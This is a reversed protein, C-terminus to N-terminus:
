PLNGEELIVVTDWVHRHWFHVRMSKRTAAWGEVPCPRPVANTPFVIRSTRIDDGGGEEDGEQGLGWNAVGQQTQRHAVLSGKELDKGCESCLVREWQREKDGWREGTM